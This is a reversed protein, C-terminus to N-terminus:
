RHGRRRGRDGTEIMERGYAIAEDKSDLHVGMVKVGKGGTLGDPKLAYDGAAAGLFAALRDADRFHHFEVRGPLDHKEM